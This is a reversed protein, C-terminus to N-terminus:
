TWYNLTLYGYPTRAKKQVRKVLSNFTPEAMWQDICVTFSKCKKSSHLAFQGSTATRFQLQLAWQEIYDLAYRFINSQHKELKLDSYM